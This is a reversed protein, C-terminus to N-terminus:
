DEDDFDDAVSRKQEKRADTDPALTLKGKPKVVFKKNFRPRDEKDVLKEVAAPSKMKPETFLQDRDLGFKELRRILKSESIDDRFIRHTKGEVLKQGPVKKGQEAIRQAAGEVNRCFADIMPIWKLLKALDEVSGPVELDDPEDDDFDAAVKREVSKRLEGCIPTAPCFRCHDGAVLKANKKETAEVAALLTKGWKVLQKMTIVESRVPGDQHAARPQVITCTVKEHTYKSERAAGLGYYRTQTNGEVEVVVGAGHKYDIVVLEEPWCDIVVDNTGYMDKRGKLPYVRVEIRLKATKGLRKMEARVHDICVQVADIMDDNVRFISNNFAPSAGKKLFETKNSHGEDDANVKIFRDKFFKAPKDEKLCRELLAHAATGEDAYISSGQKLHEPVTAILAPSGPCTMWRKSTSAGLDAHAKIPQKRM